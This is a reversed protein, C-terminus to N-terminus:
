SRADPVDGNCLGEVFQTVIAARATLFDAYEGTAYDFEGPKPLLNSSFVGRATQGLSAVCRPLYVKPDSDSIANNGAASLMENAQLCVEFTPGCCDDGYHATVKTGTVALGSPMGRMVDRSTVASM